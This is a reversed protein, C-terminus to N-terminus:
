GSRPTGARHRTMSLRQATGRNKALDGCGKGREDCDTNCRAVRERASGPAYLLARVVRERTLSCRARGGTRQPWEAAGVRAVEIAEGTQVVDDIHPEDTVSVPRQRHSCQSLVDAVVHDREGLLTMDGTDLPDGGRTGRLQASVM